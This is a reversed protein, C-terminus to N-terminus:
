ADMKQARFRPFRVPRQSKAIIETKITGNKDPQGSKKLYYYFTSRAMGAAKLLLDQAHFQM